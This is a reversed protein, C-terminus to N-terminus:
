DRGGFRGFPYWVGTIRGRVNEVPVSGWFRSDNSNDRNDGMVFVHGDPVVYHRFPKCPDSPVATVEVIKGPQQNSSPSGELEQNACSRLVTTPFDKFDEPLVIGKARSEDRAPREAHHFTGYTHGGHVERYRSVDRSYWGDRGGGEDYDQHTASKEVLQEDIATGNIYIRNCRVEVTDGAVAIVRKIYDREPQCPMAFVIIDGHSPSRALKNAFVHDGVSFTPEMSSSPFKFAELAFLRVVVAIAVAAVAAGGGLLGNWRIPPLSRRVGLFADIISGLMVVGLVVFGWVTFLMVAFAVVYAGLGIAMALKRGTLGQVFGPGVVLNTLALLVAVM